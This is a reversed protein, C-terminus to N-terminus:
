IPKAKIQSYKRPYKKATSQTKKFILIQKEQNVGYSKESELNINFEKIAKTADKLESEGLQKFAVFYADKKLLPVSLEIVINLYAVSRCLAIDFSERYAQGLMGIEEARAHLTSVNDLGMEENVLDIFKLKKGVSDLATFHLDLGEKKAVLALPLTPFGGGTGIDIIKLPAESQEALRKLDPFFELADKFHKEYVDGKERIASINTHANFEKYLEFLKEFEVAYKDLYDM